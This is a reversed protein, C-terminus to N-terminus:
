DAGTVEQYTRVYSDQDLSYYQVQDAQAYHMGLRNLAADKVDELTFSSIIQNYKADNDSKLTTYRSKLVGIEDTLSIHQSRQQLYVVCLFTAAICMLTLFAVFGRSLATSRERARELNRKRERVRPPTLAGVDDLKRAASGDEYGTYESGNRRLDARRNYASTYSM